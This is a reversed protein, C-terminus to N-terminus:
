RDLQQVLSVTVVDRDNAIFVADFQIQDEVGIGTLRVRVHQHVRRVFVRAIGVHGEPDCGDWRRDGGQLRVVDRYGL